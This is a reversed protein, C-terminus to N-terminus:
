ESELWGMSWSPGLAFIDPPHVTEVQTGGRGGERGRLNSRTRLHERDTQRRIQRDRWIAGWVDVVVRLLLLLAVRRLLVAAVVGNVSLHTQSLPEHLDFCDHVNENPSNVHPGTECEAGPDSQSFECEPETFLWPLLM